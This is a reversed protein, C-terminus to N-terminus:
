WGHECVLWHMADKGGFDCSSSSVCCACETGMVKWLVRQVNMLATGLIVPSCRLWGYMALTLSVCPVASGTLSCQSSTTCSSATTPITGGPGSHSSTMSGREGVVLNKHWKSSSKKGEWKSEMSESPSWRCIEVCGLGSWRGHGWIPCGLIRAWGQWVLRLEGQSSLGRCCCRWGLGVPLLNIVWGIVGGPHLGLFTTPVQGVGPVLLILAM